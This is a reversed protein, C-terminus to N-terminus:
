PPDQRDMEASDPGAHRFNRRALRPAALLALGFCALALTLTLPRGDPVDQFILKAATAALLPYVMWGLGGAPALRGLAGAAVAALALVATRLAAQSGPDPAAPLGALVALAALGLLGLAGTALCPLRMGWPAPGPERGRRAVLMLHGAALAALAMPASWPLAAQVPALFARAILALLGSAVASGALLAAGHVLLSKRGFRRGLGTFALGLLAFHLALWGGPLLFPSSGLVLVAGLSTLFRFDSSGETQRRVFSFAAAYCGLGILLGALGLAGTGRGSREAVRLAGGFGAALVLLTQVVEFARVSRPVVLARGIFSALYVVVLALALTLALPATLSRALEPANTKAGALIAASLIAGDAALAVPWQLGQWQARGRLLLTAAAFLLFLACFAPIASTAAMLAFGTGLGALAAMWTVAELRHRWAVALLLATFGLLIAASAGPALAAFRTTTEWLLPYAIAACAVAHYAASLTRGRGGARDAAGAWAAAYALGLIVGALRPLTGSETVTRILFAGALVLSTRGLLGLVAAASPRERAPAALGPAPEPSAPVARAHRVPAELLAVRDELMRVQDALAALRLELAPPGAAPEIDRTAM